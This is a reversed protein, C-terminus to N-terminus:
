DLMQYNLFGSLIASSSRLWLVVFKTKKKVWFFDEDISYATRLSLSPRWSHTHMLRQPIEQGMGSNWWSRWTQLICLVCVRIARFWCSFSIDLHFVRRLLQATWTYLHYCFIEHWTKPRYLHWRIIQFMWHDPVQKTRHSEATQQLKIKWLYKSNYEEKKRLAAKSNYTCCVYTHASVVRCYTTRLCFSESTM